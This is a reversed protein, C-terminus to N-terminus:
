QTLTRLRGDQNPIRTRSSPYTKSPFVGTTDTKTQKNTKKWSFIMMMMMMMMVVV